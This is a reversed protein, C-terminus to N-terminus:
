TVSFHDSIIQRWESRNEKNELEFIKKISFGRTEPLNNFHIIGFRGGGIYSVTDGPELTEGECIRSIVCDFHVPKGSGSDSIASAMDKIPKGCWACDAAPLPGTALKPPIWRPRDFLGGRRKETKECGPLGAFKKDAQRVADQNSNQTNEKERRKFPRRRNGRNDGGKGSGSM